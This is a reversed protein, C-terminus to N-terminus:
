NSSRRVPRVLAPAAAGGVAASSAPVAVGGVRYSQQQRQQQHLHLLSPGTM